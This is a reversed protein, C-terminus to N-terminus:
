DIDAIVWGADILPDCSQAYCYLSAGEYGQIDCWVFFGVVDGSSVVSADVINGVRLLPTGCMGLGIIPPRPVFPTSSIYIGQDLTVYFAPHSPGPFRPRRKGYRSGAYQLYQPGTYCSDVCILDRDAIETSRVLKKAISQVELFENSLPVVPNILGIDEGLCIEVSGVITSGHHAIKRSVGDWTHYACTLRMEGDQTVVVGTNSTCQGVLAGDVLSGRCELLCGPRLKGGNEPDLYDTYDIALEDGESDLQPNPVKVRAATTHLLPGNRYKAVLHGFARPADALYKQFDPDPMKELEVLLQRPYVSVFEARPLMGFLHYITGKCANHYPRLDDKVDRPLIAPEGRAAHGIDRVGLPFPEGEVIFVAFLGAILFPRENPAPLEDAVEVVIWPFIIDIGYLNPYIITLRDFIIRHHEPSPRTYTDNESDWLSFDGLLEHPVIQPVPPPVDAVSPSSPPPRDSLRPKAITKKPSSFSARKRRRRSSPTSPPGFPDM